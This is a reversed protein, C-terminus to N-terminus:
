CDIKFAGGGLLVSIWTLIGGFIDLWPCDFHLELFSNQLEPNTESFSGAAQDILYVGDECVLPIIERRGHGSLSVRRFKEELSIIEERKLRRVAKKLDERGLIADRIDAKDTSKPIAHRRPWQFVDM